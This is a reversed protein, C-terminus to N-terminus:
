SGSGQEPVVEPQVPTSRNCFLTRRGDVPTDCRNPATPLWRRVRRCPAIDCADDLEEDYFLAGASSLDAPTPAPSVGAQTTQASPSGGVAVNMAYALSTSVLLLFAWALLWLVRPALLHARHQLDM